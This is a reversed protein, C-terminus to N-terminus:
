DSLTVDGFGRGCNQCRTTPGGIEMCCGGLEIEGREARQSDSGRHPPRLPDGVTDRSGCSPCREPPEKVRARRAGGAARRRRDARGALEELEIAREYCRAGRRPRGAGGGRPRPLEVGVPQLKAIETYIRLHKYAGHLDGLELLTYGLGFHGMPDGAEIVHRWAHMAEEGEHATAFGFMLRNVTDGQVQARPRSASRAPAPRACGSRRCTSGRPRGSARAASPTSSRSALVKFGVVKGGPKDLM